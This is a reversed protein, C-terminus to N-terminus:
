GQWSLKLLRKVDKLMSEPDADTPYAMMLNGAPDMIFMGGDSPEGKVQLWNILKVVAEDPGVAVSMGEYETLKLKLGTINERNSLVLFRKIRFRDKDNALRIQRLKYLNEQCSRPCDSGAVMILVWHNRFESTSYSNNDLDVVTLDEIPRVPQVLTGYNTASSLGLQDGYFYFLIAAIWPASFLMIMAILPKNNRKGTQAPVNAIM